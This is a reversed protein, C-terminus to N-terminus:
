VAMEVGCVESFLTQTKMHKKHRLSERLVHNIMIPINTQSKAPVFIRRKENGIMNM